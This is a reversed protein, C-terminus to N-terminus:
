GGIKILDEWKWKSIRMYESEWRKVTGPQVGIFAAFVTQTMQLNKRITRIQRGQGDFLFKNYDDLLDTVEIQFLDAIRTLKDLPYYDLVMEYHIYTTRDINAHDAVERQLLANTYRYYRLKDATRCLKDPDPNEFLFRQAETLGRPQSYPFHFVYLPAYIM